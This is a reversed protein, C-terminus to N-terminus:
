DFKNRIIRYIYESALMNGNLSYYDLNKKFFYERQMKMPDKHKKMMNIFDEIQEFNSGPAKYLVELLESGFSNFKEGTRTLFLLPKGTYQYEALFGISDLIMIDSSLFLDEYTGSTVVRANPLSEWQEIYFDYAEESSFLGSDIAHKKLFPHPKFVWSTEYSHSKAYEYFYKYNYAFTSAAAASNEEISHHPAFIIKLTEKKNGCIKWINLNNNTQKYYCDMKPYGCYIMNANGYISREAVIRLYEKTDSFNYNCLTFAESGNYVPNDDILMFGYPIYCTVINIDLYRLMYRENVFAGECPTLYFVVGIDSIENWGPISSGDLVRYGKQQFYNISDVFEDRSSSTAELMLIYPEFDDDNEFMKYLDDCSWMASSYLLFIVKKKGDNHLKKVRLGNSIIEYRKPQYRRIRELDGYSIGKIDESHTLRSAMKSYYFYKHVKESIKM